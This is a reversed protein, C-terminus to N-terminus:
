KTWCHGYHQIFSFSFPIRNRRVLIQENSLILFIQLHDLSGATFSNEVLIRPGYEFCYASIFRSNFIIFEGKKPDTFSVLSIESAVIAALVFASCLIAWKPIVGSQSVTMVIFCKPLAVYRSDAFIGCFAAAAVSHDKTDFEAKLLKVKLEPRLHLIFLFLGKQLRSCYPM